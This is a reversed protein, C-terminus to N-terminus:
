QDVICSSREGVDCHLSISTSSGLQACRCSGTRWRAGLDLVKKGYELSREMHDRQQYQLAAASAEINSRGVVDEIVMDREYPHGTKTNARWLFGRSCEERSGANVRRPRELWALSVWARSGDAGPIRSIARRSASKADRLALSLARESHGVIWEPRGIFRVVDAATIRVLWLDPDLTKRDHPRARRPTIWRYFPSM